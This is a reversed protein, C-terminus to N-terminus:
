EEALAKKIKKGTARQWQERCQKGTYGNGMKIAVEDWKVDALEVFKEFLKLRMEPTWGESKRGGPSTSSKNSSPTTIKSKSKKKSSTFPKKFDFDPTTM